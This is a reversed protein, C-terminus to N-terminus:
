RDRKLRDKRGKILAIYDRSEFVIYLTNSTNLIRNIVPSDESWGSKSHCQIKMKHSVSFM